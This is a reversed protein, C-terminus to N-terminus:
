KLGHNGFAYLLWGLEYPRCEYLVQLDDSSTGAESTTLSAWATELYRKHNKHYACRWIVNASDDRMDRNLENTGSIWQLGKYIWPGYDSRLVEGLAFLAMPAMGEQHVSYVPYRGVVRSNRSDYHWWWQGLPGQLHLGTAACQHPRTPRLHHQTVEIPRQGIVM